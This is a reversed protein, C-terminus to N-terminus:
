WDSSGTSHKNGIRGVAMERGTVAHMRKWAVSPDKAAIRLPVGSTVRMAYPPPQVILARAQRKWEDEQSANPKPKKIAHKEMLHQELTEIDSLPLRGYFVALESIGGQGEDDDGEGFCLTMDFCHDSGITLGDLIPFPPREGNALKANRMEEDQGDIRILSNDGDFIAAYCHWAGPGRRGRRILDKRIPCPARNDQVEQSPVPPFPCNCEEDRGNYEERRRENRYLDDYYGNEDESCSSSYDEDDEDDDVDLAFDEGNLQNTAMSVRRDDTALCVASQDILEDRVSGPYMHGLECRRKLGSVFCGDETAVGVCFLTIPGDQLPGCAFPPSFMRTANTGMSNLFQVSPHITIRRTIVRPLVHQRLDSRRQMRFHDKWEDSSRPPSSARRLDKSSSVSHGNGLRSEHRPQLSSTEDEAEAVFDEEGWCPCYGEPRAYTAGRVAFTADRFSTQQSGQGNSNKPLACALVEQVFSKEYGFPKLVEFAERYGKWEYACTVLERQATPAASDGMMMRLDEEEDDDLLVVTTTQIGEAPYWAACFHQSSSSPSPLRQQKEHVIQEVMSSLLLSCPAKGISKVVCARWKTSVNALTALDVNASVFNEVLWAVVTEAPFKVIEDHDSLSEESGRRLGDLNSVSSCMTALAPTDGSSPPVGVDQHASV